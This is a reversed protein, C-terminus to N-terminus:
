IGEEDDDDADADFLLILNLGNYIETLSLSFFVIKKEEKLFFKNYVNM